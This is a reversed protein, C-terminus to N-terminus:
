QFHPLYLPGRLSNLHDLTTEIASINIGRWLPSKKHQDLTDMGCWKLIWFMTGTTDVRTYNKKVKKKFPFRTKASVLNHSILCCEVRSKYLYFGVIHVRLIQQIDLSFFNPSVKISHVDQNQIRYKSKGM